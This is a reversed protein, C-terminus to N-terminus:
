FYEFRVQVLPANGEYLSVLWAKSQEKIFTAHFNAVEDDEIDVLEESFLIPYTCFKSKSNRM